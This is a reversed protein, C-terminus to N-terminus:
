KNKNKAPIKKNEIIKDPSRDLLMLATAAKITNKEKALVKEIFSFIIKNKLM